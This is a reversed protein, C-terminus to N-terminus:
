KAAKGKLAIELSPTESDSSVITLTARATGPKKPEFFLKLELVGGPQLTLSSSPIGEVRYNLDDSLTVSAISLPGGGRNTVSVTTAGSHDNVHTSGFDLRTNPVDISGTGRPTCNSDADIVIIRVGASQTRGACDTATFNVLFSKNVMSANPTFSLTNGSQSFSTLEPPGSASISVSCGSSQALGAVEFSLKDVVGVVIPGPPVSITPLMPSDVSAVPTIDVLATSEAGHNDRALFIAIVGQGLLAQRLQKAEPTFSFKGTAPDFTANEPLFEASLSVPDGDDDTAKVIFECTQGLGTAPHAPISIM